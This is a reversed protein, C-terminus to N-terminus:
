IQLQVKMALWQRQAHAHVWKQTHENVRRQMHEHMQGAIGGPNAATGDHGANVKRTGQVHVKPHERM